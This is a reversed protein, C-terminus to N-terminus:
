KAAVYVRKGARYIAAVTAREAKHLPTPTKPVTIEFHDADNSIAGDITGALVISDKLLIQDGYGTPRQVAQNRTINQVQDRGVARLEGLRELVFFAENEALVRARVDQGTKLQILDYPPGGTCRECVDDAHTFPTLAQAM